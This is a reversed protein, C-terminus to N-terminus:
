VWEDNKRKLAPADALFFPFYLGVNKCFKYAKPSNLYKTFIFPSRSLKAFDKLNNPVRKCQKEQNEHLFISYPIIYKSTKM